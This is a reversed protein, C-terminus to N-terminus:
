HERTSAWTIVQFAANCAHGEVELRSSDISVINLRSWNCLICNWNWEKIWIWIDERRTHLNSYGGKEQQSIDLLEQRTEVVRVKSSFMTKLAYGLIVNATYRTLGRAM